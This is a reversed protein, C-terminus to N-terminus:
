NEGLYGKYPHKATQMDFFKKIIAHLNYMRYHLTDWYNAVDREHAKAYFSGLLESFWGGSFKSQWDYTVTGKMQIHMNGSSLVKKKGDVEVEMETLNWVHAQIFVRFHVYDNVEKTMVWKWEQEAGKPSPVKHKYDIEHWMYGYNKAWDIMASYLGDFDFLGSYRIMRMPPELKDSPDPLGMIKKIDM